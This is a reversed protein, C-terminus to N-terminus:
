NIGDTTKLRTYIEWVMTGKHTVCNGYVNKGDRSYITDVMGLVGAVYLNDWEILVKIISDWHLYGVSRGKRLSISFTVCAM